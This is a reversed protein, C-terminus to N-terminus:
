VLGLSKVTDREGRLEDVSADIRARSFDDIEVAPVISWEGNACTCPFGSILGEEVEYSGDSPIGMSVWDDAPTGLVWDQVHDIAASAASKASSAGRAEIIAAGRQQVTPIFDRDIWEREPVLELAPRGGV